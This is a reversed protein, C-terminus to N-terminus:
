FLDGAECEGCGAGCWPSQGGEDGRQGVDSGKQGEREQDSM